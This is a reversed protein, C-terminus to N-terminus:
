LYKEWNWAYKQNIIISHKLTGMKKYDVYINLAGM